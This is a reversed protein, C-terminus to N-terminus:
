SEALLRLHRARSGHKLRDLAKAEIQRIRERTVSFVNGVQELTQEGEDTMGFRLALIRQERESLTGLLGRVHEALRNAIASDLPSTASRDEVLDGITATADNRLPTELSLPQRACSLATNVQSVDIELEKALEESSPERGFEQVFKRSQRGVRGVLDHMHVPLRITAAQDAIARSMSQRVWWTAYTSFKYGRKYDFRDVAKMLGINGEQILDVLHLGRHEFRKAAAVVLRL